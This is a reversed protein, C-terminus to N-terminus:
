SVERQKRLSNYVFGLEEFNCFFQKVIQGEAMFIIEVPFNEVSSNIKTFMEYDEDLGYDLIEGLEDIYFNRKIQQFERKTVTIPHLVGEFDTIELQVLKNFVMFRVSSANEFLYNIEILDQISYDKM